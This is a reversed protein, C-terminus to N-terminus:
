PFFHLFLNELLSWKQMNSRRGFNQWTLLFFCIQNSCQYSPTVPPVEIDLTLEKTSKCCSIYNCDKVYIYPITSIWIIRMSGNSLILRISNIKNTSFNQEVVHSLLLVLFRMIFFILTSIPSLNLTSSSSPILFFIALIASLHVVSNFFNVKFMTKRWPHLLSIFVYWNELLQFHIKDWWLYLWVEM